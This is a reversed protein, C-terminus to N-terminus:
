VSGPFANTNDARFSNCERLLAIKGCIKRSSNAQSRSNASRARDRLAYEYQPLPWAHALSVEDDGSFSGSTEFVGKRRMNFFSLM